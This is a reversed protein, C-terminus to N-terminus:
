APLPVAALANAEDPFISLFDALRTIRFIEVYHDTLGCTLLRIGADRAQALLGVILAIGTSNIYEVSRFSLLIAIPKHRSAEAFATNLAAEANANIEGYLDIIPIEPSGPAYRVRTEIAQTPM